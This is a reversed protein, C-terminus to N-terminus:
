AIQVKLAGNKRMKLLFYILGTLNLIALITQSAILGEMKFYYYMPLHMCIKLALMAAYYTLLKNFSDTTFVLRSVFVVLPMLFYHAAGIMSYYVAIAAQEPNNALIHNPILYYSLAISMSIALVSFSSVKILQRKFSHMGNIVLGTAWLAFVTGLISTSASALKTGYSYLSLSQDKFSNMLFLDLYNGALSILAILLLFMIRTREELPVKIMTSFPFKVKSVKLIIFSEVIFGICWAHLAKEENIVGTNILLWAITIMSALSVLFLGQEKKGECTLCQACILTISFAFTASTSLLIDLWDGHINLFYGLIVYGISSMLSISFGFSLIAEKKEPVNFFKPLLPVIVAPAICAMFSILSQHAVFYDSAGIERAILLFAIGSMLKLFGALGFDLLISIYKNQLFM